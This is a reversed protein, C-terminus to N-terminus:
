KIPQTPNNCCDSCTVDCLRFVLHCVFTITKAFCLHYMQKVCEWLLISSSMNCHIFCREQQYTCTIHKHMFIHRCPQSLPVRLSFTGTFARTPVKEAAYFQAVAQQTHECVPVPGPGNVPTLRIYLSDKNERLLGEGLGAALVAVLRVCCSM